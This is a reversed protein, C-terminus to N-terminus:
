LTVVLVSQAAARLRMFGAWPIQWSRECTTPWLFLGAAISCLLTALHEYQSQTM